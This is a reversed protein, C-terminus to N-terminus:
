VKGNRVEYLKTYHISYSTIVTSLNGNSNGIIIALIMLVGTDTLITGGVTIAVAENKTIGMKSVIPYAVLTHTAFMSATLLSANFNYGLLYYCLTFGILLPLSFTFVGFVFSKNRNLRFQGINLDLGAIFMIYLMGITSFLEVASNKELINFGHPGIVVGSIILGIIGPIKLKKLLITIVEYLM